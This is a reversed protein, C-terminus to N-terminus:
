KTQTGLEPFYRKAIAVSQLLGRKEFWELRRRASEVDGDLYALELGYRNAQLALGYKEALQHATVLADRAERVRGLAKLASGKAFTIEVVAEAFGMQGARELAGDALALGEAAQGVATKACSLAPLAIIIAIEQHLAQAVHLADQAYKLALIPHIQASWELYLISLQVLTNVLWPQPETRRFIELAELLIDETREYEGLEVLVYSMMVLTQAYHISNGVSAYIDLTEQLDPLSEWYHGQQLRTLSRNRLVNAVSELPVSTDQRFRSLVESYITDADEFRGGYFAIAAQLEGLSGRDDETAQPKALWLAVLDAAAHLNGQHMYAWGVHYITKGDCQERNPDAEWVQIVEEHRASQHLLKIYRQLWVVGQKAAPPLRRLLGQMGEHDGRVALATAQLYLAETPDSLHASAKAALELMLGYDIGDLVKAAELALRGKEEGVAHESAEAMLRGALVANGGEQAAKAARSLLTLATTRDLSAAGIFGAARIPDDHLLALAQRALASRKAQPVQKLAIERYLPHVFNGKSFVGRRELELKAAVLEPESLEAVGQWLTDSTDRPLLAGAQLTAELREDRRVEALSLEILAEVTPPM